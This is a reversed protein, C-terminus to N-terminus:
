ERVKSKFLEDTKGAIGICLRSGLKDLLAKFKHGLIGVDKELAELM